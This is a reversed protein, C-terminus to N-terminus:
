SQWDLGPWVATGPQQAADGMAALTEDRWARFRAEEVERAADRWASAKAREIDIYAQSWAEGIQKQTQIEADTMGEAQEALRIARYREGQVVRDYAPTRSTIKVIIASCDMIIILLEMVTVAVGIGPDARELESLARQRGLLGDHSSQFALEQVEAHDRKQQLDGANAHDQSIQPLLQARDARQTTEAQGFATVANQYEAVRVAYVQGRGAHGSGPPCGALDSVGGAECQMLLRARNVAERDSTVAKADATLTARDAAAQTQDQQIQPNYRPDIYKHDYNLAAAQDDRQLQTAVDTRYWFLAIMSSIVLAALVAAAARLVLFVANRAWSWGSGGGVEANMISLDLLLVILGWGAGGVVAPVLKLQQGYELAVTMALTGFLAPILAAIGRATFAPTDTMARELLELRAGGLRALGGVRIAAIVVVLTMLVAFIAFM